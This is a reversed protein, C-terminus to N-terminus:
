LSLRSRALLVIDDAYALAGFFRNGIFMGLKLSALRSFISDLYINFLFPSLIFGQPVGNYIRFTASHLGGWLVSAGLSSYMRVLLLCAPAPIKRKLLYHFLTSYRVRDFAKTADLFCAYLRERRSNVVYDALTKLVFTCTTTSSRTKFGFQCHSTQLKSAYHKLFFLEILKATAPAVSIGRFQDCNADSAYKVAPKPLPTISSFCLSSPFHQHSLMCNVLICVLSRLSAPGHALPFSGTTSYTHKLQKLLSDFTTQPLKPISAPQHPQTLQAKLGREIETLKRSETHDRDDFLCFLGSFYTRWEARQASIGSVNNITHFRSHTFSQMKNIRHWFQRKDSNALDEALASEQISKRLLTIKRIAYHYQHRSSQRRTRLENRTDQPRGADVWERHASIAALRKEEVLDLWGPRSHPKPPGATPICSHAAQSIANQIYSWADDILNSHNHSCHPDHCNSLDEPLTISQILHDCALSFSQLQEPSAARWNLTRSGRDNCPHRDRSLSLALCCSLPLHGHDSTPNLNDVITQLSIIKNSLSLSTCIHDILTSANHCTYTHSICHRPDLTAPLLCNDVLFTRLCRGLGAEAQPNANFDGGIIIDYSPHQEALAQIEMLTM